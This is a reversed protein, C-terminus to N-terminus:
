LEEEIDKNKTEEKGQEKTYEKLVTLVTKIDKNGYDENNDISYIALDHYTTIRVSDLHRDTYETKIPCTYDDLNSFSLLADCEANYYFYRDTSKFWNQKTPYNQIITEKYNESIKNTDIIEYDIDPFEYQTEKGYNIIRSKNYKNYIDIVDSINSNSLEYLINKIDYTPQTDAFQELQYMYVDPLIYDLEEILGNVDLFYDDKEIINTLINEIYELGAHSVGNNENKVWIYNLFEFEDFNLYHRM